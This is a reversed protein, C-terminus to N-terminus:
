SGSSEQDLTKQIQTKTWRSYTIAAGTTGQLNDEKDVQRLDRAFRVGKAWALTKKDDQTSTM